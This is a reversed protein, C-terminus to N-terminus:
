VEAAMDSVFPIQYKASIKKIFYIFIMTIFVTVFMNFWWRPSLVNIM